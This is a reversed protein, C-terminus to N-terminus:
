RKVENLSKILKIDEINKNMAIVDEETSCCWHKVVFPSNFYSQVGESEVIFAPKEILQGNKHLYYYKRQIEKAM